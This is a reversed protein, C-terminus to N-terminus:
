EFKIEFKVSLVKVGLREAETLESLSEYFFEKEVQIDNIFYKLTKNCDVLDSDVCSGSVLVFEYSSNKHEISYYVGNDDIIYNKFKGGAIVPYSKGNTFEFVHGESNYGKFIAEM